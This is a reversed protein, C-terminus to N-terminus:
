STQWIYITMRTIEELWNCLPVAPLCQLKYYVLHRKLTHQMETTWKQAHFHMSHLTHQWTNATPAYRRHLALLDQLSQHLSTGRYARHCAWPRDMDWLSRWQPLIIM